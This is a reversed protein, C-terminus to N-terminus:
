WVAAAFTMSANDRRWIVEQQHVALWWTQMVAHPKAKAFGQPSLLALCWAPDPDRVSQNVIGGINAESVSCRRVIESELGHPRQREGSVTVTAGDRICCNQSAGHTKNPECVPGAENFPRM